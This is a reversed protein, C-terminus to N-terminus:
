THPDEALTYLSRYRFGPPTASENTFKLGKDLQGRLLLHKNVRGGGQEM